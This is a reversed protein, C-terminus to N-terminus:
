LDLSNILKDNHLDFEEKDVFFSNLKFLHNEKSFDNINFYDLKKLIREIIKDDINNKTNLYDSLLNKFVNLDKFYIYDTNDRKTRSDFNYAVEEDKYTIVSIKQYNYEGKYNDFLVYEKFNNFFVKNKEENTTLDYHNILDYLQYQLDNYELLDDMFDVQKIDKINHNDLQECFDNEVFKNSLIYKENKIYKHEEPIHDNDIYDYDTEKFVYINYKILDIKSEM